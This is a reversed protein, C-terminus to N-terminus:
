RILQKLVLLMKSLLVTINGILLLIIPINLKTKIEIEHIFTYLLILLVGLVIFLDIGCTFLALDLSNVYACKPTFSAPDNSQTLWSWILLTTKRPTAMLSACRLKLQLHSM